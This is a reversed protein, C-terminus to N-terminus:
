WGLNREQAAAKAAAAARVAAKQKGEPTQAINERIDSMPKDQTYQRLQFELEKPDPERELLEKFYGIISERVEASVQPGPGQYQACILKGSIALGDDRVGAFSWGNDTLEIDYTKANYDNALHIFGEPTITWKGFGWHTWYRGDEQFDIYGDWVKSRFTWLTSQLTRLDNMNIGYDSCGRNDWQAFANHGASCMFLILVTISFCKKM